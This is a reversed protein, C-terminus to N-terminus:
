LVKKCNLCSQEGTRANTTTLFHPCPKDSSPDYSEHLKGDFGVIMNEPLSEAPPPLEPQPLLPQPQPEEVEPKTLCCCLTRKVWRVFRRALSPKAVAVTDPKPQAAAAAAAREDNFKALAVTYPDHASIPAANM